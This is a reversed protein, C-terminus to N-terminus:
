EERILCMQLNFNSLLTVGFWSRFSSGVLAIHVIYLIKCLRYEQRTKAHVKGHLTDNVHQDCETTESRGHSFCHSSCKINQCSEDCASKLIETRILQSRLTRNVWEDYDDQRIGSWEKQGPWPQYTFAQAYISQRWYQLVFQDFWVLQTAKKRDVLPLTPFAICIYSWRSNARM